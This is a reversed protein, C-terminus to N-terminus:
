GERSPLIQLWSKEGMKYAPVAMKECKSVYVSSKTNKRGIMKSDGRNRKALGGGVTAGEEICM